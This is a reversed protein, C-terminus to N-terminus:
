EYEIGQDRLRQRLEGLGRYILNRAKPETWRLRDAVEQITFGQLYLGVTQRRNQPLRALAAEIKQMVQRQEALEDPSKGPNTLPLGIGDEEAEELVSWQEERRAKVQRVADIITTMAIRYIYSSFESVNRESQVARWLRLRAEQEIDDVQLGLHQPCLQEITRHLFQGYEELLANFRAEVDVAESHDDM